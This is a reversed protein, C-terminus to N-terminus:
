FLSVGVIVQKSTFMFTARSVELMSGESKQSHLPFSACVFNFNFALLCFGHVNVQCLVIHCLPKTLFIMQFITIKTLFYCCVLVLFGRVKFLRLFSTNTQDADTLSKIMYVIHELLLHFVIQFPFLSVIITNIDKKLSFSLFNLKEHLM